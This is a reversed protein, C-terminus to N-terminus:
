QHMLELVRRAMLEFDSLELYIQASLRIYLLTTGNDLQFGGPQIWTNYQKELGVRVKSLIEGSQFPLIVTSLAPVLREDTVLLQTGWINAVLKAAKWALDHNYAMIANEGGISERFEFSDYVALFANYNVTGIYEFRGAFASNPANESSIINPYIISHWKSQVHLVCASKPNFSWKHTNSIYADANVDVLNLPIQGIAHAGDVLVFVGFEHCIAVMEKIPLLAAPYSSIHDLSAVKVQPNAKLAARLNVLLEATSHLPFSMNVIVIDIGKERQLYGVVNRVMPYVVNLILIKNGKVLPLNDALSRLVANAGSSANEVIVTENEPVGLLNALFKRARNLLPQYGGRFWFNCNEEMLKQYHDFADTAHRCATGFAGNNLNTITAGMLFHKRMGHGFPESVNSWQHQAPDRCCVLVSCALVLFLFM